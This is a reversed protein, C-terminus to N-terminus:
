PHNANNEIYKKNIIIINKFFNRVIKIFNKIGHFHNARQLVNKKINNDIVEFLYGEYFLENAEAVLYCGPWCYNTPVM